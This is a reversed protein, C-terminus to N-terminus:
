WCNWFTWFTFKQTSWHYNLFVITLLKSLKLFLQQNDTVEWLCFDAIKNVRIGLSNSSIGQRNRCKGTVSLMLVILFFFQWCNWCKLIGIQRQIFKEKLFFRNDAIEFMEFVPIGICPLCWFALNSQKQSPREQTVM